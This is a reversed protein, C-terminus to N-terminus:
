MYGASRAAIVAATMACVCEGEEDTWTYAQKTVQSGHRIADALTYNAIVGLEIEGLQKRLETLEAAKEDISM